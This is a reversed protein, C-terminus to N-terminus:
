RCNSSLIARDADSIPEGLQIREIITECKDRDPRVPTQSAPPLSAPVARRMMELRARAAEAHAGQPYKQLFHAFSAADKRKEIRQWEVAELVRTEQITNAAVFGEAAAGPARVKYWGSGSGGGAITIETGSKLEALTKASKYPQQLLKTPVITRFSTGAPAIEGATGPALTPPRPIAMAIESSPLSPSPAVLNEV